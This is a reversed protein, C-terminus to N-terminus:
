KTDARAKALLELGRVAGVSWFLQISKKYVRESEDFNGALRLHTAYYLHIPASTPNWRVAAEYIPRAEAFRGVGDLASGLGILMWQDQPYLAIGHQFAEVAAAFAKQAAARETAADGLSAQAQGKYLHLFPNRPDGALGLDAFEIANQYREERFAAPLSAWTPTYVNRYDPITVPRLEPALEALRNWLSCVDRQHQEPSAKFTQTRIFGFHADM